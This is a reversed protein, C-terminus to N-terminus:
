GYLGDPRKRSLVPIFVILFTLFAINWLLFTMGLCLHYYQPIFLPLIFRFIGGLALSSFIYALGNPPLLVNRGTHGLGIRCMMGVTILGIGGVAFAHISHYANVQVFFYDVVKLGFGLTIGAYGLYLTWLLPKKWLLKHHWGWLRIGNLLFLVAAFFITIEHQPKFIAFASFVLMAPIMAKDIKPFYKLKIPYDVGREIFFPIMRRGFILVLTLVLYFGWYIGFSSMRPDILFKGLYYCINGALMLSVIVVVGANKILKTLIVPRAVAVALILLFLNDLIALLWLVHPFDFYPLIRALFWISWLFLLGKGELTQIHTWNRVATLLFGAVVAICYGYIMEHAHWHFNGYLPNSINWGFLIIGAWIISSVIAMLAAGLFFLRFSSQLLPIKSNKAYGEIDIPIM